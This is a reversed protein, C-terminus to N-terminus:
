LWCRNEYDALRLALINLISGLMRRFARAKWLTGGLTVFADEVVVVTLRRLPEEAVLFHSPRWGSSFVVLSFSVFLTCCSALLSPFCSRASPCPDLPVVLLRPLTILFDLLLKGLPGSVIPICSSFPLYTSKGNKPSTPPNIQPLFVAFHLLLSLPVIPM